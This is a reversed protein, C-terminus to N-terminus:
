ILSLSLYLIKTAQFHPSTTLTVFCWINANHPATPATLLPHSVGISIFFSRKFLVQLKSLGLFTSPHILGGCLSGTRSIPGGAISIFCCRTLKQAQTHAGRCYSYWIQLLSLFSPSNAVNYSSMRQHWFQSYSRCVSQWLSFLRAPTYFRPGYRWPLQSLLYNKLHLLAGHLFALMTSPRPFSCVILCVALHPTVPM